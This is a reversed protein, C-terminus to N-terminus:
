KVQRQKKTEEVQIKPGTNHKATQLMVRLKRNHRNTQINQVDRFDHGHLLEAACDINFGAALVAASFGIESNRIVAFKKPVARLYKHM